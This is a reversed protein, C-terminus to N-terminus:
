ESLQKGYSVSLERGAYYGFGDIREYGSTEYLRMAEPQRTGTELVVRRGGLARARGELAALVVRALGRGRAQPEVYMRKIEIDEDDIRRVGGMAVPVADLYGVLFRGEPPAFEAPEVPAEDPGGYRVVYEAQVSDILQRAAPSDYAEERVDLQDTVAVAV